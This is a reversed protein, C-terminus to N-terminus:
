QFRGKEINAKLIANNVNSVHLVVNAKCKPCKDPHLHMTGCKRCTIVGRNDVTDNPKIKKLMRGM